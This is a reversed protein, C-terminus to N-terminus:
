TLMMLPKKDSFPSTIETKMKNSVDAASPNNNYKSPNQAVM